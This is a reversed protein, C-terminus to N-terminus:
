RPAPWTAAAPRSWAAPSAPSTIPTSSASPSAKKGAARTRWGPTRCGACARCAARLTEINRAHNPGDIARGKAAMTWYLPAMDAPGAPRGVSGDPFTPRTIDGIARDTIANKGTLAAPDALFSRAAGVFGRVDASPDALLDAGARPGSFFAATRAKQLSVDIGFVPADPSRVLGLAKGRTDVVTISVQAQSNLPQRIQARARSMVTFAQALVAQVEGSTLATGVEAADSGGVIPYRNNGAGDSLVFAQANPFDSASAARVGSAESGYATGALVGGATYGTLAELVGLASAGAFTAGAVPSLSAYDSDSYRLQTGVVYIADARIATPAEFGM